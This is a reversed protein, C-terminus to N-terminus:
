AAHFKNQLYESFYKANTPEGTAHRMLDTPLYRRGVSHVNTRLWSILRTYNGSLIDGQLAVNQDLAARYLQAANLNGLTYTPFYGFGGMSWHIDQLCGDSDKTVELGFLEKFRANWAGPLDGAALTGDILAQELEFRLIIHLNYTVEDSETRIYTPQVHNIIIWFDDLSIYKLHPFIDRAIPYWYEWFVRSRGIQNEWLRSQSEHIGLSVSEGLPTGYADEPLGQEYIGHGAEHMIGFLSSTFDNEDYRTTLRCDNPGMGSCFPHTTTDIRGADFDFGMATAVKGNFKQQAETSYYGRIKKPDVKSTRKQATPLIETLTQRLNAFLVKLDAANSGPEYANLLANYPTGEWGWCDAQRRSLIIIKELWPRFQAFDSQKRAHTWAERALASTRAMETVLDPPTKTARDYDRRWERVNGRRADDAPWAAQEAECAALWEGVEPATGLRHASGALYSLQEARYTVGKPPLYTEQDWAIVSSTSSLLAIERSRASLNDYPTATSVTSM